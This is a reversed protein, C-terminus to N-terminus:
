ETRGHFDELGNETICAQMKQDYEDHPLVEAFCDAYCIGLTRLFPYQAFFRDYYGGGAGLRYGQADYATMPLLVLTEADPTCVRAASVPPVPINYAGATLEAMDDLRYFTMAHSATECVPLALTKGMALCAELIGKTQVEIPMAVYAFIQKARMFDPHALVAECIAKDAAERKEPPMARRIQRMQQRLQNKQETISFESNM